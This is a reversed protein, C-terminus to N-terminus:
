LKNHAQKEKKIQVYWIKWVKWALVILKGFDSLKKICYDQDIKDVQKRDVPLM